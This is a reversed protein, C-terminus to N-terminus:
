LRGRARAYREAFQRTPKSQLVKVALRPAIAYLGVLPRIPGRNVIVEARDERIAEVVAEAVQEPAVTRLGPPPEGVEAELRGYMGVRGVFGPCVASFSVPADAYENRMAHTFGIVGHKTAAYSALYPPPLKGALSALNVAHGRGRELMGPLVLRTLDMVAVLNVAVIAELEERTAHGFSGGFELGANNVLVDPPGIQETAEAVLRERQEPDALDAVIPRAEVGAAALEAALSDLDRDPLDSAAVDTGAAALARCIYRGLGGAAGTVLARAGRLEIM